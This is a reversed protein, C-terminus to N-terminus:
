RRIKKRRKGVFQYLINSILVTVTFGIGDICVDTLACTRDSVFFQHFEDSCAYALCFLWPVVIYVWGHGLYFTFVFCSVFVGLCAYLFIHAMKRLYSVFFDAATESMIKGLFSRVVASFNESLESSTEGNQSSLIFILLMVALSCLFFIIRCVVHRKM